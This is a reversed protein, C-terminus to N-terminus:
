PTELNEAAVADGPGGVPQELTDTIETATQAAQAVPEIPAAPPHSLEGLPDAELPPVIPMAAAAAPMPGEATAPPAVPARTPVPAGWHTAAHHESVSIRPAPLKSLLEVLVDDVTVGDALAEYSLVVRHNLVDYAIEYVDQPLAYSRGRLVAM